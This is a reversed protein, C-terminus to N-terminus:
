RGMGKDNNAQKRQAHDEQLPRVDKMGYERHRTREEVQEPTHLLLTYKEEQFLLCPRLSIPSGPSAM